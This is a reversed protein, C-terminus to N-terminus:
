TLTTLVGVASLCGLSTDHTTDRIDEDIASGGARFRLIHESVFGVATSLSVSSNSVVVELSGYRPFCSV